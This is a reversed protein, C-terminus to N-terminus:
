NKWRYIYYFVTQFVCIKLKRKKICISIKLHRSWLKAINSCYRITQTDTHCMNQRLETFFKISPIESYIVSLLIEIYNPSCRQKEKRYKKPVIFRLKKSHFRESNKICLIYHSLYRKNWKYKCLYSYHLAIINRGYM